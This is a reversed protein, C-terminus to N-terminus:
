RSNIRRIFLNLYFLNLYFKNVMSNSGRRWGLSTIPSFEHMQQREVITANECSPILYEQKRYLVEHMYPVM